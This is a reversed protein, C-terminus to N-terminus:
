RNQPWVSLFRRGQNQPQNLFSASRMEKHVTYVSCLMVRGTSSWGRDTASLRRNRDRDEDSDM